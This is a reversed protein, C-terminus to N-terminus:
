SPKICLIEFERRWRLRQWYYQSVCFILTSFIWFRATKCRLKLEICFLCGILLTIFIMSHKFLLVGVTVENKDMHFTNLEVAHVPREWAKEGDFHDRIEFSGAPILAMRRGSSEKDQARWWCVREVKDEWTRRRWMWGLCDDDGAVLYNIESDVYIEKWM